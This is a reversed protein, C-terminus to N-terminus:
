KIPMFLIPAKPDLLDLLPSRLANQRDQASKWLGEARGKLMENVFDIPVIQALGSNEEFTVRPRKTQASYATDTYPLYSSVVGVLASKNNSKTGVISSVEPRLMVPGGSNGPFVFADLLFSSSRGEQYESIRAIAGQRLIVYNRERGALNMPFGLVFVGDGASIGNAVLESKGFVHQDNMFFGAQLGKGKLNEIPAPIAALDIEGNEHFFWDLVNVEFQESKGAAESHDLRVSIQKQGTLNLSKIVHGATVLYVAYMKKSADEDDKVLYGYLFGTGVTVWKTVSIGDEVVTQNGGLAVVATMFYPPLLASKAFRPQVFLVLAAILAGCFQQKYMTHGLKVLTLFM